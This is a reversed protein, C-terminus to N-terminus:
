KGRVQETLLQELAREVTLNHKSAYSELVKYQDDTVHIDLDKYGVKFYRKIEEILKFM